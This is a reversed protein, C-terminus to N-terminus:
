SHELVEKKIIRREIEGVLTHKLFIKVWLHYRKMLSHTKCPEYEKDIPNNALHDALTQAKIAKHTVYLIYFESLLM